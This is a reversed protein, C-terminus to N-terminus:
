RAKGRKGDAVRTRLLALRGRRVGKGGLYISNSGVLIAVAWEPIDPLSDPTSDASMMLLGSWVYSGAIAAVVGLFQLRELSLGAGPKEELMGRTEPLVRRFVIAALAALLVIMAVPFIDSTEM